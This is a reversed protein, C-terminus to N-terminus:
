RIWGVKVEKRYDRYDFGKANKIFFHPLKYVYTKSQSHNLDLQCVSGQENRKAQHNSKCHPCYCASFNVM